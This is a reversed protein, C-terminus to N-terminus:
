EQASNKNIEVLRRVFDLIIALEEINYRAVLDQLAQLYTEYLGPQSQTEQPGPLIIVRRRDNPDPQRRAWGARELRDVVGTIAGTTLGSLKALQGASLPGNRVLLEACKWDSSGMGVRQATTSASLVVATSLNRLEWELQKTIESRSDRSM